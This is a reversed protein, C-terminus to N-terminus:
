RGVEVLRMEGRGGVKSVLRGGGVEHWLVGGVM